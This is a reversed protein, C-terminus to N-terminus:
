HAEGAEKFKWGRIGDVINMRHTIPSVVVGANSLEMRFAKKLLVHGSMQNYHQMAEVLNISSGPSQKLFESLWQSVPLARM